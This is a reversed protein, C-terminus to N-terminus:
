DSLSPCDQYELLKLPEAGAAAVPQMPPFKRCDTTCEIRERETGTHAVLRLRQVAVMKALDGRWDRLQDREISRAVAM